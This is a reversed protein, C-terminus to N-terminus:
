IYILKYPTIFTNEIYFTKNKALYGNDRHIGVKNDKLGNEILYDNIHHYGFSVSNGLSSMQAMIVSESDEPIKADEKWDSWPQGPVAKYPLVYEYFEEFNLHQLYQGDRWLDFSKDIHDILFSAPINQADSVFRLRLALRKMIKEAEAYTTELYLKCSFLSVLSSCYIDYAEPEYSYHYRINDILYEAAKRKEKDHRFHRIVTRLEGANEGAYINFSLTDYLCVVGFSVAALVAASVLTKGVIKM